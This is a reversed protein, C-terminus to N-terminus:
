RFQVKAPQSKSSCYMARVFTPQVFMKQVFTLQVFMLQVFALLVFIVRVFTADSKLLCLDNWKVLCQKKFKKPSTQNIPSNNSTDTEEVKCVAADFTLWWIDIGSFVNNSFSLNSLHWYSLNWDFLLQTVKKLFCVYFIENKLVCKKLM